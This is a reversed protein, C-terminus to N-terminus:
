VYSNTIKDFHAGTMQYDGSDNICVWELLAAEVAADSAM